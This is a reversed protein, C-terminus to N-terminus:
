ETMLVTGLSVWWSCVDSFLFCANLGHSVVAQVIGRIYRRELYGGTSGELGDRGLYGTLNYASLTGGGRETHEGCGASFLGPRM